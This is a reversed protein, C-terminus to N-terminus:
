ASCKAHITIEWNEAILKLNTVLISEVNHFELMSEISNATKTSHIAVLQRPSPGMLRELEFKGQYAFSLMQRLNPFSFMEHSLMLHGSKSVHWQVSLEKPRPVYKGNFEFWSKINKHKGYLFYTSWINICADDNLEIELTIDKQLHLFDNMKRRKAM